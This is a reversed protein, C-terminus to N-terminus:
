CFCFSYCVPLLWLEVSFQSFLQMSLVEEQFIALPDFSKYFDTSCSRLSIHDVNKLDHFCYISLKM